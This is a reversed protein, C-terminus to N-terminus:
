ECDQPVEVAVSCRPKIKNKILILFIAINHPDPIMSMVLIVTGLKLKWRLEM